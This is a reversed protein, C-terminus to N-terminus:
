SVVEKYKPGLRARCFRCVPARDIHPAGNCVKGCEAPNHPAEKNVSMPFYVSLVPISTLAVDEDHVKGTSAADNFLYSAQKSQFAQQWPKGARLAELTKSLPKIPQTLSDVTVTQGALPDAAAVEAAKEKEFAKNQSVNLSGIPKTAEVPRTKLIGRVQGASQVQRDNRAAEKNSTSAQMPHLLSQAPRADTGDRQTLHHETHGAQQM